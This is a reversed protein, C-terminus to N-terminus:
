DTSERKVFWGKVVINGNTVHKGRIRSVMQKVIVDGMEETNVHYTTLEPNCIRAYRFDDYGAVAVDEPVRYGCDKLQEVLRYAVEDCSCIFAQPMEEPLQVSVFNGEVDRDELVWDMRLSEGARLLAKTYGLFRDMISSTAHISGLFGIKTRGTDLMHKTLHYGGSVNDSTVSSTEPTDDDYFDLLMYPMGSEMVIRMYSKQLEGMVILGDVKREQIVTPVLCNCEADWSIIELMASLGNENCKTVIQRYLNSYFTSDAFFRDAVLIGLNGSVKKEGGENQPKSRLPVYGMERALNLIKERMEESVGDKGSLAKSVSVVSIGLQEAIDAMRIKKDMSTIGM